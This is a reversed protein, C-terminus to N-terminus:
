FIHANVILDKVSVKFYKQTILDYTKEDESKEEEETTDKSSFARRLVSTRQSLFGIEGANPDFRLASSNRAFRVLTRFMELLFIQM